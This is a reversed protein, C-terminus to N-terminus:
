QLADRLKRYEDVSLEGRALREDLVARAGGAGGAPSTSGTRRNAQM